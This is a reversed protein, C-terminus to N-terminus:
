YRTYMYRKHLLYGKPHKSVSVVDVFLWPIAITIFSSLLFCYCPRVASLAAFTSDKGQNWSIMKEQFTSRDELLALQPRAIEEELVEVREELINFKNELQKIKILSLDDERPIVSLASDSYRRNGGQPHKM